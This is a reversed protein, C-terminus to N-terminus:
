APTLIPFLEALKQVFVPRTCGQEFESILGERSVGHYSCQYRISQIIEIVSEHIDEKLSSFRLFSIARTEKAYPPFDVERIVM